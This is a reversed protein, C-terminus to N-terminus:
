VNNNDKDVNKKVRIIKGPVGAVVCNDPIDQLVVSGAGIIVNNGIKIPGLICSNAGVVTNEGIEPAGNLHGEKGNGGITVGQFIISNKGISSKSNIVVGLANHPFDVTADINATYPIDCSFVVRNVIRLFKPIIPVKKIYLKRSLNYVKCVKHKEM